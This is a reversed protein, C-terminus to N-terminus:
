TVYHIPILSYYNVTKYKQKMYNYHFDYMLYKSLDLVTFGVYIPKCLKISARHSKFAVLNEYFIRSEVFRPKSVLKKLDLQIM